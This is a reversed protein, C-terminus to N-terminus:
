PTNETTTKNGFAILRRGEDLSSWAGKTELYESIRLASGYGTRLNRQLFSIPDSIVSGPALTAVLALSEHLLQDCVEDKVIRADGSRQRSVGCAM